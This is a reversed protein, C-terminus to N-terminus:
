PTRERRLFGNGERAPLVMFGMFVMWMSFSVRLMPVPPVPSFSSFATLSRAVMLPAFGTLVELVLLIGVHPTLGFKAIAAFTVRLPVLACSSRLRSRWATSLMRASRFNSEEPFKEKPISSYM